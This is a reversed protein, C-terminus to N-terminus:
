VGPVLEADQQDEIVKNVDWLKVTEDLGGTILYCSSSIYFTCLLCNYYSSFMKEDYISTIYCILGNFINDENSM